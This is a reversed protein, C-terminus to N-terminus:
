IKEGYFYGIEYTATIMGGAAPYLSRTKQLVDRRPPNSPRAPASAGVGKLVAFLEDVNKYGRKATRLESRIEAFGAKQLLGLVDAEKPFPPFFAKQGTCEVCAESYANRLEALTGEAMLSFSLFGGKKIVALLGRLFDPEANLIWQFALSSVVGDFVAPKFPLLVADATAVKKVGNRKAEASMPPAFDIAVIDAEPWKERAALSTFGSGCGVDLIRRPAGDPAFNELLARSTENQLGAYKEYDGASKAFSKKVNVAKIM